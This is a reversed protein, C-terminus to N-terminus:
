TVIVWREASMDHEAQTYSSGFLYWDGQKPSKLMVKQTKSELDIAPPPVYPAETEAYDSKHLPSLTWGGYRHKKWHKVPEGVARGAATEAARFDGDFVDEGPRPNTVIVDTWGRTPNDTNVLRRVRDGARFPFDSDAVLKINASIMSTPRGWDMLLNTVSKDTGDEYDGYVYVMGQRPEIKTITYVGVVDDGYDGYYNFRQGVRVAEFLM